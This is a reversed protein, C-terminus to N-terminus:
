KRMLKIYEVMRGQNIKMIYLGTRGENSHLQLSYSGDERYSHMRDYIAKGTIDLIQINLNEKSPSFFQVTVSESFPNPYVKTASEKSFDAVSNSFIDDHGGSNDHHIVISGGDIKTTAEAFDAAGVQTDYIVTGSATWIKVRIKDAKKSKKSAKDSDHHGDHNGHDDDDDDDDGDHDDKCDDLVSILIRYGSTGNVKGVGTFVAQNDNVVLWEYATSRFKLKGTKFEFDTKGEPVIGRKKYKVDFEFTAKGTAKANSLCAGAPSYYWGGGTVFGGNVDYVFIYKYEKEASAGCADTLTVSIPYSGPDKYSHWVKFNNEPNSVTQIASHDNWDITASAVNNDTFSTTLAFATNVSLVSKSVVLSNIVPETNTVVVKQTATKVNGHIDTVTWTVITEGAAFINDAQDHTVTKVGCNDAAEPKTLLITASCAKPDNKALVDQLTGITPLTEDKVTVTTNCTSSQGDANTVTLVVQTIGVAYPGEPSVTFTLPGGNEATSGNDFDAAMAVGQCNNNASRVLPKCSAVPATNCKVNVAVQDTVSCGGATYTVTYLTSMEPSAIPNQASADSLGTAPSWSYFEQQSAIETVIGGLYVGLDLGDPTLPDTAVEVTLSNESGTNWFQHFESKAFTLIRPYQGAGSSNCACTRHTEEFSGIVQGNLKFTFDVIDSCASYYLLFRIELPDNVEATQSFSSSVVYEAGDSCLDGTFNCNDVGGIADFMCFRNVVPPITGGSNNSVVANLQVPNDCITVDDGAMIALSNLKISTKTSTGSCGMAGFVQVFYTGTQSVTISETTEGTSWLYTYPGSCKNTSATLTVTEGQCLTTSGSPTINAGSEFELTISQSEANCSGNLGGWNQNGSHVRIVNPDDCNCGVTGDPKVVGDVVLEIGSPICSGGCARGVTWTHGGSSVSGPTGSSLLLALQTAAVPDNIRVGTENKSGSIKVALFDNEGLRNLFDTWNNCQTASPPLGQTFNDSWVVSQARLTCTLSTLLLFVIFSSGFRTLGIGSLCYSTFIKM